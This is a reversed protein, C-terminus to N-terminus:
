KLPVRERLRVWEGEREGMGYAGKVKIEGRFSM